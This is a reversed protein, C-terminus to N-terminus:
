PVMKFPLIVLAFCLNELLMARAPSFPVSTIIYSSFCSPLADVQKDEHAKNPLESTKDSQAHTCIVIFAGHCSLQPKCIFKLLIPSNAFVSDM